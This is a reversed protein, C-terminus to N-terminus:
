RAGGGRRFALRIKYQGPSTAQAAEHLAEHQQLLWRLCWYREMTSQHDGYASYKADFQSIVAFLDADSGVYPPKDARSVAIIQRQNVLDTYRRLPSTCWGYQAVGLGQHPQPHITMKVRGFAQSRYIGPARHDALLKGWSSNALIMLEAVIRDLPADRRRETISVVDTTPEISFSYDSRNRGEPRGRVQERMATLTKTLAWLVHLDNWRVRLHEPAQAWEAPEQESELAAESVFDDLLDHRLNAAVVLREVKTETSGLVSADENTNAYLSLVPVERGADLSFMRIAAEPLMTIKDGPMYV